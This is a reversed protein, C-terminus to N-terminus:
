SSVVPIQENFCPHAMTTSLFFSCLVEPLRGPSSPPGLNPSTPGLALAVNQSLPVSTEVIRDTKSSDCRAGQCHGIDHSLTFGYRDSWSPVVGNM